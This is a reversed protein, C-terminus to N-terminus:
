YFKTFSFENYYYPNHFFSLFPHKEKFKKNLFKAKGYEKNYRYCPSWIIEILQQTNILAYTEQGNVTFTEKSLNPFLKSM